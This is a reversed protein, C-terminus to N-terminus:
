TAACNCPYLAHGQQVKIHVMAVASLRTHCGCGGAQAAKAELCRETLAALSERDERRPQVSIVTVVDQKCPVAEDWAHHPLMKCM